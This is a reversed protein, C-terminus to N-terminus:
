EGAQGAFGAEEEGVHGFCGVLGDRHKAAESTLAHVDGRAPQVDGVRLSDARQHAFLPDTRDDVAGGVGVHVRGLIIKIQRLQEVGPRRLMQSERHLFAASQQHVDARVVHEPPVGVVGGAPLVLGTRRRADVSQGLEVAFLGDLGGAAAVYDQAGGPKVAFEALIEHTRHEAQRGPLRLEFNDEVLRAGRSVGTVQRIRDTHDQFIIGKMRQWGRFGVGAAADVMVAVFADARPVVEGLGNGFQRAVGRAVDLGAVAGFKGRRDVAGGVRDQIFGLDLLGEADPDRVPHLRHFFNNM